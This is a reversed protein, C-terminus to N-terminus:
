SEPFVQLPVSYCLYRQHVTITLVEVSIMVLQAAFGLVFHAIVRIPTRQIQFLRRM